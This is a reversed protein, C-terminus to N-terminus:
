VQRKGVLRIHGREEKHTVEMPVHVFQSNVISFYGDTHGNFAIRFKVRGPFKVITLVPNHLIVFLFALWENYSNTKFIIEQWNKM